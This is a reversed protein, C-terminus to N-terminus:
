FVWEGNRFIPIVKGKSDVGDINLGSYGIMFDEHIISDNIGKEKAEEFSLSEYDKLCNSFGRGMALHCSANEDFLTNYFMFGMQSIPSSNAVLACEGLMAAGEDMELLTKLAEANKEAGSEIARGNEFKIYFDEILLGRYSFPKTSYVIGEAKGAMPSTFIEESPINPNYEYDHGMLKEAGGLFLADPILGVKLETGNDGYYHLECLGMSNLMESRKHLLVNHENWAEIPDEFDARSAKLIKEWLRNVSEAEAMDPFVKKAWKKGPVAAICWPYKNDMEDHIPKLIKSREQISLAHKQMDIGSLGDPDESIIHIVGPLNRAMNRLRLEEWDEVKSLSELSEYKNGLKYLPQHSWRLQIEGAGAKYLTEVLLEIFEPQDLEATIVIRQGKQVNIGTKAILEAYKRIKKDM